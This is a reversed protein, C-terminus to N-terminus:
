ETETTTYDEHLQKEINKMQQDATILLEKSRERMSETVEALRTGAESVYEGYRAV